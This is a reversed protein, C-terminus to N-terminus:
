TNEKRDNDMLGGVLIATPDFNKKSLTDVMEPSLWLVLEEGVHLTGVRSPVCAIVHKSVVGIFQRRTLERLEDRVEDGFIVRVSEFLHTVPDVSVEFVLDGKLFAMKTM